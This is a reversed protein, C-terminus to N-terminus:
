SEHRSGEASPKVSDISTKDWFVAWDNPNLLEIKKAKRRAEKPTKAEVIVSGYSRQSLIFTVEYQTSPNTDAATQGEHANAASRTPSNNENNM